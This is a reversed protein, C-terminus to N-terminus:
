NARVLGVVDKVANMTQHALMRAREAGEALVADIAAPDALLRKM